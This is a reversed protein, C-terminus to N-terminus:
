FFRRITLLFVRAMMRNCHAATHPPTHRHTATHQLTNCHTATHRLTNCHTCGLKSAEITLLFVSEMMRNSHTATHQLANCQTAIHQHALMRRNLTHTTHQTHQINLTNCIIHQLSRTATDQRTKKDRIMLLFGRALIGWSLTHHLTNCLAHQLANCHM